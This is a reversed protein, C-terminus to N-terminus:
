REVRAYQEYIKPFHRRDVEEREAQYTIEGEKLIVLRTGLEYGQELNHSTVVVIRHEDHLQRITGQLTLVAQSDLGTEPEDLLVISPDHLVARALSARQHLGRSFSGVKECLRSELNFRSAMDSIRRELDPVSYMRGYFKLNEFLTLDEYLFSQHSVLSISPRVAAPRKVIDFGNILVTGASPKSLTALIRLLSTKGAGNPGFIALSEGEHVELNINRLARHDGFFKSVGRMEISKEGAVSKRNV